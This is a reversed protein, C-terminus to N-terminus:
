SIPCTILQINKMLQGNVPFRCLFIRRDDGTGAAPHIGNDGARDDYLILNYSKIVDNVYRNYHSCM